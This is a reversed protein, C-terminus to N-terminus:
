VPAKALPITNPTWFPWSRLNRSTSYLVCLSSSISSRTFRAFIPSPTDTTAITPPAPRAKYPAAAEMQM